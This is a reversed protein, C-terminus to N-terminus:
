RMGWFIFWAEGIAAAALILAILIWTGARAEARKARREADSEDEVARVRRSWEQAGSQEILCRLRACEDTRRAFEDAVSDAIMVGDAYGIDYARSMDDPDMVPPIEVRKKDPDM